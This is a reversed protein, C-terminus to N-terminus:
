KLNKLVMLSNVFRACMRVDELYFRYITEDKYYVIFGFEYDASFGPLADIPVNITEESDEYHFGQADLSLNGELDSFTFDEDRGLIMLSKKTKSSIKAESDKWFEHEFNIQTENWAAINDPVKTDESTFFMERSIEAKMGCEKCFLHKDDQSVTYLKGCVPCRYFLNSVGQMYPKSKSGYKNGTGRLYESENYKMAETLCGMIEEASLKEVDEEDLIATLEASFKGRIIGKYKYPPKIFYSGHPKLVAVPVGLKKILKATADDIPNQTSDLSVRGEPMMGLIMGNRVTRMMEKIAKVDPIFQKKPIVKLARLGKGKFGKYLQQAGVVFRAYRPFCSELLAVADIESPHTSLIVFSRKQRKWEKVKEDSRLRFGLVIFCVIKLVLATIFYLARTWFGIKLSSDKEMNYITAHNNM